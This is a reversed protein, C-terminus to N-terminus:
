AYVMDIHCSNVTIKGGAISTTVLEASSGFQSCDPVSTGFTRQCRQTNGIRHFDPPCVKRKCRESTQRKRREHHIEDLSKSQVWDRVKSTIRAFGGPDRGCTTKSGFSAVGIAVYRYLPVTFQFTLLNIM